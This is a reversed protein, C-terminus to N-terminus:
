ALWVVTGVTWTVTMGPTALNLLLTCAASPWGQGRPHPLPMQVTFM